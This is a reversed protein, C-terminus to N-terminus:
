KNSQVKERRGEKRGHLKAYKGLPRQQKPFGHLSHMVSYNPSFDYVLCLGSNKACKGSASILILADKVANSFM